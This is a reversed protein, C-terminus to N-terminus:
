HNLKKLQSKIKQKLISLFTRNKVGFAIKRKNIAADILKISNKDTYINKFTNMLQVGQMCKTKKDLSSWIGKKHERYVSMYEKLIYAKSEKIAILQLAWDGASLEYFFNPIHAISKNRFVLTSTNLRNKFILEKFTLIEINLDIKQIQENKKVYSKHGCYAYDINGELFDVQKQLKLPDTWYDDGECLAIYKGTCEQLAFIFNPMMGLNKHHRTYKFSINDSHSKILESIVNETQDSSCDDAIIFEIEFNTQQMLVGEIAQKIYAEHNYTIMCVSVLPLNTM